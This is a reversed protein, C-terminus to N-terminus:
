NLMILLKKQLKTTQLFLKTVFLKDNVNDFVLTISPRIFISEPLNLNDKKTLNINEFYQIM